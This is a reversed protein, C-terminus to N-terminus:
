PKFEYITQLGTYKCDIHVWTVGSEMRTLGLEILETQNTRIVQRVQEATMGKVDFDVARGEKHMSRLAGIRCNAPRYGRYRYQGGRHWNNITVPKGGCLERIREVLIPIKADIFKVSEGKYEQWVEPPVLERIDIHPTINM